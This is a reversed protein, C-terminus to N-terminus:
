LKVNNNILLLDKNEGFFENLVPFLITKDIVM